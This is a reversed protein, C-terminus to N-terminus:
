HSQYGTYLDFQEIISWTRIKCEKGNSLYAIHSTEVHNEIKVGLKSDVFLLFIKFTHKKQNLIGGCKGATSKNVM